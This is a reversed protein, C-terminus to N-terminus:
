FHFGLCINFNYYFFRVVLIGNWQGLDCSRIFARAFNAHKTINLDFAVEAEQLIPVIKQQFIKRGKGAGSKPNLLVLLRREEKLNKVITFDQINCSTVNEGKILQKVAIRWRQAEKHNDEYKDFSRFRLTIITRERRQPIGKVCHLIYAYIYLYASVDSDDKEQSNEDVVKLSSGSLSKCTCSHKQKKSRLCRCGIIDKIPITQEKYNNETEKILSLGNKMLRVRFTLNKKTLVYFTEELLIRNEPKREGIDGEM